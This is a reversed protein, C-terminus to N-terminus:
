FTERYMLLGHTFFNLELYKPKKNWIELPELHPNQDSDIIRNRRIRKQCLKMLSFFVKENESASTIILRRNISQVM